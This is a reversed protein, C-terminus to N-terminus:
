QGHLLLLTSNDEVRWFYDIARWHVDSSVQCEVGPVEKLVM